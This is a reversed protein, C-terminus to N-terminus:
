TSFVKEQVSERDPIRPLGVPLEATHNERDLVEDVVVVGVALEVKCRRPAATGGGFGRHRSEEPCQLCSSGPRQNM